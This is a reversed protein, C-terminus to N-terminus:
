LITDENGIQLFMCGKKSKMQAKKGSKSQTILAELKKKPKRALAVEVSKLAEDQLIKSHM